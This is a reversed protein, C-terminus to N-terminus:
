AVGEWMPAAAPTTSGDATGFSVDTMDAFRWCDGDRGTLDVTEDDEGGTVIAAALAHRLPRGQFRNRILRPPQITRCLIVCGNRFHMVKRADGDRLVNLVAAEAAARRAEHLGEAYAVFVRALPLRDRGDARANDYFTLVPGFNHAGCTNGASDTFAWAELDRLWPEAIAALTAPDDWTHLRVVLGDDWLFRMDPLLAEFTTGLTLTNLLLDARHQPLATRAKLFAYVRSAKSSREGAPFDVGSVQEGDPEPAVNSLRRPRGAEEPRVASM